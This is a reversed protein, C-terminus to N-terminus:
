FTGDGALTDAPLEEDEDGVFPALEAYDAGVVVSADVRRTSDRDARVREPPIGLAAAVRRAAEPNATRDLVVSEEVDRSSHNGNEVVDFGRSRLFQTTRGALGTEMTGNRVEVQIVDGGVTGGEVEDASARDPATRPVFTRAALGYLLALVVLGAGLLAINVFADAARARGM